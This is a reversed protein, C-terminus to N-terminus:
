NGSPEDTSWALSNARKKLWFGMLSQSPQGATKSAKTAHINKKLEGRVHLIEYRNIRIIGRMKIYRTKNLYGEVKLANIHTM